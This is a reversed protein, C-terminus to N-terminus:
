PLVIALAQAAARAGSRLAGELTGHREVGATHEGALVIRGAPEALAPMLSAAGPPIATYAGRAFPETSWDVLIATAVPVLDSDLATLRGLWGAPDGSGTQLDALAGPSGAYSTVVARPAGDEAAGVWWWFPGAVSQRARPELAREVPVALKAAVGFALADEAAQVASPLPPEFM